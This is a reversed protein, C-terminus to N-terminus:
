KGVWSLRPKQFPLKSEFDVTGSLGSERFFSEIGERTPADKGFSFFRAVLADFDLELRGYGNAM